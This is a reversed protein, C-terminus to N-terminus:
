NLRAVVAHWTLAHDPGSPHWAPPIPIQALTELGAERLWASIDQPSLGLWVDGHATRLADDAHPLYDLVVLHGGKKLLRAFSQVAAQPKSAHHLTRGAFVLDAGGMADVREVLAADDYSGPFLSVHHFGRSAVREAVRALQARSRDVALVRQYLPALVDILLGDGTGVDIALRHGPLLPALAALHALHEPASPTSASTPVEFLHRGTDERAAVVQPVRGLSGDALCLRRGEQIADAIVADTMAEASTRVWTRTGDKRSSVLGGDRLASVKRSLQPQSDDLLASLEGISLEEEACLALVQLRGPESLLRYLEVRGPAKPATTKATSSATPVVSFSM